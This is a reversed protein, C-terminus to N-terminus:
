VVSKRDVTEGHAQQFTDGMSSVCRKTQTDYTFSAGGQMFWNCDGRVYRGDDSIGTLRIAEMTGGRPLVSDSIPIVEGKETDVLLPRFWWDHPLDDSTQNPGIYGQYYGFAYRGDPTCGTLHGNHWKGGDADVRDPYVTVKKTTRNYSAARNSSTNGMVIRGVLINADTSGQKFRLYHGNGVDIKMIEGTKMNFLKSDCAGDEDGDERGANIIAWENGGTTNYLIGGDGPTYKYIKSTNGPTSPVIPEIYSQAWSNTVSLLLTLFIMAIGRNFSLSSQINKYQFYNQM